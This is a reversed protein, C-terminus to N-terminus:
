RPHHTAERKLGETIWHRLLHQYPVHRKAAIAKTRQLQWHELRIAIMKKKSREAIRRALEPAVQIKEDVVELDDLYDVVSNKDWFERIEEETGLHPLRKKKM